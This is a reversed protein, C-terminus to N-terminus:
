ATAAVAARSAARGAPTLWRRLTLATLGLTTALVVGAATLLIPDPSPAAGPAPPKFEQMITYVLASTATLLMFTAPLLTYIVNSGRALLWGTAVLLALAALVQNSAGFVGWISSYGLQALILMLAVALGSNVWYQQLTRLALRQLGQTPTAAEKAPATKKANAFVDYRGFLTAWGEEITYRTLRIATDLTTVLFGELLLMAGVVGFALPLGFGLGATHGVGLAFTLVPNGAQHPAQPHTHAAYSSLSLGVLLCCVVCAAFFSELLMGYFGVRRADPETKLQKCTTGTACLAHFGSVAGCAITIFLIPWMPGIAQTATTINLAPIADPQAFAGGGQIAATVVAAILFIVGFYLLHVNIFDRSQLFLWVPLGASILVYGAILLKWGTPSLQMPLAFGIAISAACIALALMSCAWTAANRKLYLWGILPSFLTIVVVSTSAIGGIVAMSEGGSDVTRFFNQEATLGLAALPVQSTLAKASLDLFAACILALIAVLLLLMLLFATRGIYRRTIVALNKGGERMAIHTSVFDHVAGLFIGGLVIWLLAPLWGYYLAIVPGVIPGAGAISAYHHAFVVSTRTPVYDRGDNLTVAPTARDPQEGLTRAIVRAYFRGGLLLLGGAALLILLISM